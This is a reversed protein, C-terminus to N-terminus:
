KIPKVRIWVYKYVSSSFFIMITIYMKTNFVQIKYSHVHFIIKFDPLFFIQMIVTQNSEHNHFWSISINVFHYISLVLINESGFLIKM